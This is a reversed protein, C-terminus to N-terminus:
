TCSKAVKLDKIQTGSILRTDSLYTVEGRLIGRHCFQVQKIFITRWFDQNCNEQTKGNNQKCLFCPFFVFLWFNELDEKILFESDKGKESNVSELSQSNM